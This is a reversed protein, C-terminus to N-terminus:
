DVLFTATQIERLLGYRDRYRIRALVELWKKKASYRFVEEVDPYFYIM